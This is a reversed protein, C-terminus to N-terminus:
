HTPLNYTIQVVYTTCKYKSFTSYKTSSETRGQKTWSLQHSNFAALTNLLPHCLILPPPIPVFFPPSSYLSLSSAPASSLVLSLCLLLPRQIPVRCRRVIGCTPCILGRLVCCVRATACVCVCVNQCNRLCCHTCNGCKVLNVQESTVRTVSHVAVSMLRHRGVGTGMNPPCTLWCCIDLSQLVVTKM